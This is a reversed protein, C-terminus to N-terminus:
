CLHTLRAKTQKRTSLLRLSEVFTTYINLCASLFSRSLAPSTHQSNHLQFQDLIMEFGASCLIQVNSHISYHMETISGPTKDEETITM